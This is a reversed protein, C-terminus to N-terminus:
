SPVGVVDHLAAVADDFGAALWKEPPETIGAQKLAKTVQPKTASLDDIARQWDPGFGKYDDAPPEPLEDVREATTEIPAPAVADSFMQVSRVARTTAAQQGSDGDEAMARSVLAMKEASIPVTGGGFLKRIACKRAMAPFDSKWPGAGSAKSRKRRKDIEPRACIEMYFEGGKGEVVCYSGAIDDEAYKEGSWKHHIEPPEMCAFFDGSELEQKYFVGANIRKVVGTRRILELMGKYGIIPTCDTGYPVLYVHGLPSSPELGLQSCLLLSSALSEVSCAALKRNGAAAAGYLRLLREPTLHETAVDALRPAMASKFKEIKSPGNGAPELAKTM